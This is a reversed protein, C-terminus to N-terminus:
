IGANVGSYRLVSRHQGYCDLGNIVSNNKEDDEGDPNDHNSIINVQNLLDIEWKSM